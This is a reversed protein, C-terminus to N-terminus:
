WQRCQRPSRNSSDDCSRKEAELPDLDPRARDGDIAQWGPRSHEGMRAASRRAGRMDEGERREVKIVNAGLLALGYSAYPGPSCRRPLRSKVGEFRAGRTM